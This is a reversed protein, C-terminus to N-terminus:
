AHGASAEDTLTVVPETEGLRPEFDEHGLEEARDALTVGLLQLRKQGLRAELRPFFEKEEVDVHRVLLDRLVLLRARFALPELDGATLEALVGEALTHEVEAKASELEMEVTNAATYVLAEELTNHRHLARALEGLLRQQEPEPTETKLMLDILREAERHQQKLLQIAGM